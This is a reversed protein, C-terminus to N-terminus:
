PGSNSGKGNRLAHSHARPQVTESFISRFGGPGDLIEKTGKTDKTVKGLPALGWFFLPLLRRLTRGGVSEGVPTRSNPRDPPYPQHPPDPNRLNLSSGDSISQDRVRGALRVLGVQRDLLHVPLRGARHVARPDTGAEPLESGDRPTITESAYSNTINFLDLFLRTRIRDTFNVTKETRIDFVWINDERNANTDDAYALARTGTGSTATYTVGAPATGAPVSVTLERAYNVGSQHRLSRRSSSVGRVM